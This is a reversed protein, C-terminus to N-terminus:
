RAQDREVMHPVAYPNNAVYEGLAFAAQACFYSAATRSISCVRRLSSPGNGGCRLARLRAPRQADVRIERLRLIM